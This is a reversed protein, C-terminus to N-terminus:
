KVHISVFVVYRSKVANINSGCVVLYNEIRSFSLSNPKIFIPENEFQNNSHEIANLENILWVLKYNLWIYNSSQLCFWLCFLLFYYIGIAFLADFIIISFLSSCCPYSAMIIIFSYIKNWFANFVSCQVCNWIHFSKGNNRRFPIIWFTRMEFNMIRVSASTSIYKSM